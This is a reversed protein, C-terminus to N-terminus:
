VHARGIKFYAWAGGAKSYQAVNSPGAVANFAGGNGECYIFNEAIAANLPAFTGLTGCPHALAVSTAFAAAATLAPSALIAWINTRVDYAMWQSWPAATISVMAYVTPTNSAAGGTPDYLAAMLATNYAGAAAVPPPALLEIARTELDVRYLTFGLPSDPLLLYAYRKNTLADAIGRPDSVMCIGASAARPLDALFDRVPQDIGKILPM